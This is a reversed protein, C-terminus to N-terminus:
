RGYRGTSLEMTRMADLYADRASLTESASTRPATSFFRAPTDVATVTGAPAAAFAPPAPAARAAADEAPEAPLSAQGAVGFSVMMLAMQDASMVPGASAKAVPIGAAALGAPMTPIASVEGPGEPNALGLSQALLASQQPTLTVDAAAAKAKTELSPVAATTPAPIATPVEAVKATPPAMTLSGELLAWQDASLTPIATDPAKTVISAPAPTPTSPAAPPIPSVAAVTETAAQPPATERAKVAEFSQPEAARQRALRELSREHRALSAAHFQVDNM